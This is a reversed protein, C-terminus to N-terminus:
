VKTGWAYHAFAELESYDSQWTTYMVGEVGPVEKAEALWEKISVATGDYYGALVQKFGKVSFWSMSERRKGYNWNVIITDTNLGNWSGALTGNDLFYDPHANHYPDFMDSWICQIAEPAERRVMTQCRSVNHALLAGADAHLALCDNCWNAVRIEDHSLFLGAPQVHTVVDRVQEQMIHFVDANNLCAAVEGWYIPVAHWFSVLLSQGDFRDSKLTISPPDHSIDFSGKYPVTGMQPDKVAYYDLGETLLLGTSNTVTLPTGNRRLLNLLGVEEFFPSNFWIDGRNLGWVGVILTLSTSKLSNFTIQYRVWGQTPAISWQPFALPRGRTDLVTCGSSARAHFHATKIWVTFRYQHYPLVNVKQYLRGNTGKLQPSTTIGIRLSPNGIHISQTDQFTCKGPGDQYSWQTFRNGTAHVLNGNRLLQRGKGASTATEGTVRFEVQKCPLGEALNPNRQLISESAGMPCVTPILDLRLSKACAIVRRLNPLYQSNATNFVLIKWEALVVGNYGAAAARKFISIVREVESASQLNASIYVWRYKLRGLESFVTLPASVSPLATGARYLLERRTIM